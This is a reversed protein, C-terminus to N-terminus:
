YVWKLLGFITASISPMSRAVGIYGKIGEVVYLSYRSCQAKGTMTGKLVYVDSARREITKM